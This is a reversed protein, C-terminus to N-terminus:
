YLFNRKSRIILISIIIPLLTVLYLLPILSLKSTALNSFTLYTGEIIITTLIALSINIIQGKKNFGGKLIFVLGILALTLNLIPNTFRQHGEVRMERVQRNKYNNKDVMKFLESTPRERNDTFRTGVNFKNLGIDLLYEDFYLISLDGGGRSLEQRNGRILIVKPKGENEVVKGAEAMFTISKVKDRKDHVLIGGLGGEDLHQEVYVTLGKGIQNFTGEKLIIHSVDSKISWQLEKFSKISHPSIFLTLILCSITLILGLMIAPISIEWDSVGAAKAVILERDNIMKNYYFIITIFLSIPFIIILFSPLLLFTLKFWINLSLGKNIILEVFGLSQTLWIIYTLSLTVLICGSLLQFFLYSKIVRLHM